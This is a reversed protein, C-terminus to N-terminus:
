TKNFKHDDRLQQAHKVLSCAFRVIEIYQPSLVSRVIETKWLNLPRVSQRSMNGSWSRILDLRLQIVISCQTKSGLSWLGLLM